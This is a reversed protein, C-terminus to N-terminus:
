SSPSAVMERGNRSWEAVMERGIRSWDAVMGRGNWSWESDAVVGVGLGDLDEVGLSLDLLQDGVNVVLDSVENISEVLKLYRGKWTSM